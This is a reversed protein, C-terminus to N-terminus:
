EALIKTPKEEYILDSELELEQYNLPQEPEKLCKRLQSVHFVNHVQSLREPLALEYALM